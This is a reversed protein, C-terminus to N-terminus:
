RRLALLYVQRLAGDTVAVLAFARGHVPQHAARARERALLGHFRHPAIPWISRREEVVDAPRHRERVRLSESIVLGVRDGSVHEEQVTDHLLVGHEVRAGQRRNCHRVAAAEDSIGTGVCGSSSAIALTTFSVAAAGYEHRATNFLRALDCFSDEPRLGRSQHTLQERRSLARM